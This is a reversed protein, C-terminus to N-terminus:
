RNGQYWGSERNQETSCPHHVVCKYEALIQAM